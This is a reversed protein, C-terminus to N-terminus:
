ELFRSNCHIGGVLGIDEEAIDVVEIFGIQVHRLRGQRKRQDINNRIASAGITKIREEKTTWM